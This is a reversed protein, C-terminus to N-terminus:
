FPIISNYYIDAFNQISKEFLKENVAPNRLVASPHICWVVWANLSDIWEKNGSIEDISGSQNKFAHLCIDGLALILKCKNRRLEENLYPVCKKVNDISIKTKSSYCRCINSIFFDSRRIEHKEFERWLRQGDKGIFGARITNGSRTIIGKDEEFGPSEGVIFINTRGISTLVPESAGQRLNCKSCNIVNENRYKTWMRDFNDMVIIEKKKGIDSYGFDFSFYEKASSPISTKNNVDLDKLIGDVVSDDKKSNKTLDIGFFGLNRPKSKPKCIDIAAKEGVNKIECFPAYLTNNKGVWKVPDSIGLKPPLVSFGSQMAEDIVYQIKKNISWSKEDYEGYTLAACFFEAPYYYKLYATQYAILAYYASHSLNFCYSAFKLLSEWFWNAQEETFTKNIRCGEIFEIRFPEFKEVNRKKSIVKRIEDAKAPTMGAIEIFVRSVQEQYIIAGYTDKTIEGYIPHLRDYAKGHKRDVYDDAMGSDAPGPRVIAIVASIDNFNDIGMRTCFKTLPNTTLQFIGATKGSSIMDYIDNDNLPINDIDIEIGINKKILKLSESIVSLTALGLWDFKMLGQDECDAMTLNTLVADKRKVLVCKDGQELDEGSLIVAAAHQGNTKLQNELRVALDVINKYKNYFVSFERNQKITAMILSKEKGIKIKKPDIAKCFSDYEKVDLGFIRFVDRAVGRAKLRIEASIGCVREKGYKEYLLKIADQRYRKEIDVDIDPLDKRASSIFRSFLLNYKIPDLGRTIGIALAILCGGVSGRGPGVYWGNKKCSEIFDIVILFYRSFDKQKILELEEEIREYHEKTTLGLKKLGEYSLRKLEDFETKEKIQYPLGPLSIPKKCISFGDCMSAIIKTNAMATLVDNKSFHGQLRFAELMENASRLYYIEKNDNGHPMKWRKPDDWKKNSQIALLLEQCIADNKLVYHCDNTAVKNLHGYKSKILDHLTKQVDIRHPMIECYFNDNGIKQLLSDIFNDAGPQLLISNACGSMFVLGSLDSELILKYDVRPRYYFGNLNAQTLWRCLTKWGNKNKALVTMHGNSRNKKVTMDPVVYLECGLIHKVGNEQAIKQFRIAGDVSGHDTIALHTFGIKKARKIYEEPSGYGDLVSHETHLHLHVYEENKMPKTEM